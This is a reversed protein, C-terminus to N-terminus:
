VPVIAQVIALLGELELKHKESGFVVTEPVAAAIAVRVILVLEDAHPVAAIRPPVPLSINAPKDGRVGPCLWQGSDGIPEAWASNANTAITSIPKPPRRERASRKTPYASISVATPRVFEPQALVEFGEDEVLAALPVYETVMVPLSVVAVEIVADLEIVNVILQRCPHTRRLQLTTLVRSAHLRRLLRGSHHRM